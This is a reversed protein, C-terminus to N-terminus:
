TKKLFIHVPKETKIISLGINLFTKTMRSKVYVNTHEIYKKSNSRHTDLVGKMSLIRGLSIRKCETVDFSFQVPREYSWAHTFLSDLDGPTTSDKIRIKYHMTM